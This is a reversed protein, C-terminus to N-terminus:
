MGTGYLSMSIGTYKLQTGMFFSHMGTGYWVPIVTNPWPCEPMPQMSYWSVVALGSRYQIWYDWEGNVWQQGSCAIISMSSGTDLPATIYLGSISLNMAYTGLGSFSLREAEFSRLDRSASHRQRSHKIRQIGAVYVGDSVRTLHAPHSNTLVLTFFFVSCIIFM